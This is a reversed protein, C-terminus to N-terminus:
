RHKLDPEPQGEMRTDDAAPHQGFSLVGVHVLGDHCGDSCPRRQCRGADQCNGSRCSRSTGCLDLALGHPGAGSTGAPVQVQLALEADDVDVELDIGCLAHVATGNSGYIKTIAQTQIVTDM